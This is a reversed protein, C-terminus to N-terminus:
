GGAHDAVFRRLRSLDGEGLLVAADPRPEPLPAADCTRAFEAPDVYEPCPHVERGQMCSPHTQRAATLITADLIRADYPCIM